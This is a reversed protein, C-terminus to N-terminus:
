FRDDAASQRGWNDIAIIRYHQALGLIYRFYCATSGIAFGPIMVLPDGRGHIEYHLHIDGVKVTPM